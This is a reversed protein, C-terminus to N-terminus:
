KVCGVWQAADQTREMNIAALARHGRSPKAPSRLIPNPLATALLAAERTSLKSADKDFDHRAAAQIGFIGDRGWEAINLYIELIRRKSWLADILLALPIELGKRIVSRGNWLFLNRAVQMTITSAGRSPGEPDDMVDQLQQWDVGKHTCFQGDESIVVADVLRPSIDALRTWQRDVPRGTAWRGLMLTSVAHQTGDYVMLGGLLLLGLLLLGFVWNLARNVTGFVGRRAM